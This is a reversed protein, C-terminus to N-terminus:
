LLNRWSIQKIHSPALFHHGLDGVKIILTKVSHLLQKANAFFIELPAKRVVKLVLSYVTALEMLMKGFSKQAFTKKQWFGKAM